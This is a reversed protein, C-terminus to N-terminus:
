SPLTLRRVIETGISRLEFPDRGDALAQAALTRFGGTLVIAVEERLPELETGQRRAEDVLRVLLAAWRRDVSHVRAVGHPGLAPTDDICARILRPDADLAALYAGLARDIRQEPSGEGAAAEAILELLADVLLDFLALFCDDRDAFHEYFSRRSTRARAVVDAVTTAQLGRERVAAAMAALLRERHGGEPATLLDPVSRAAAVSASTM